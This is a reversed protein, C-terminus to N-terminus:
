CKWRNGCGRCTVYTTMPEDASRTQMQYYSTKTSKCRGCKFAGEYNEDQAKQREMALDKERLKFATTAWPGEPWLVDATYGALGRVDLKKTQVRHVLQPTIKLNLNVRENQDVGLTVAVVPARQLEALLHCLKHKYRWRFTRNEWSAVENQSRTHQVSWNYISKEANRVTAGSGFHTALRTRAIDRLAHEM